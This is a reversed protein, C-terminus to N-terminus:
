FACMLEFETLRNKILISEFSIIDFQYNVLKFDFKKSMKVRIEKNDKKTKSKLNYQFIFNM